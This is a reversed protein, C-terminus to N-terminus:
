LAAVTLPNIDKRFGHVSCATSKRERIEEVNKTFFDPRSVKKEKQIRKTGRQITLYDGKTILWLRAMYQINNHISLFSTETIRVIM